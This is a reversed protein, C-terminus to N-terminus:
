GPQLARMVYFGSGDSSLGEKRFYAEFRANLVSEYYTAEWPNLAEVIHRFSKFWGRGQEKEPISISAIDLTEVIRDNLKHRARRVYAKFGRRHLHLNRHVLDSDAAKVWAAVQAELTPLRLIIAEQALKSLSPSPSQKTM